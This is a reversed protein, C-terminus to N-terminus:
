QYEVTEDLIVIETSEGFTPILSTEFLFATTGEPIAYSCVGNQATVEVSQWQWLHSDKDTSTTYVFKVSTFVENEYTFSAVGDSIAVNSIMSLTDQRYLVHAFFAAVEGEKTWEAHNINTRQSYFVKGQVLNASAQRNYVSFFADDVGSVFLMPKTAYPLYSSADYLDIWEQKRAGGFIGDKQWTTDNYVFGCGNTSAFAAFRKDVGATVCTVFGGWSNGTMVIRNKDVDARARLINNCMIAGCVAHYIWADTPTDVSDLNSGGGTEKPGGEPNPVRQGDENLQNSFSDFAIAVYGESMWYEMWAKRVSGGGGHALVIAPYGDKPMKTTPVGIAAFVWTHTSNQYPVSKFKFARINEGLSIGVEKTEPVTAFLAQTDFISDPKVVDEIQYLPANRDTNGGNNDGASGCGVLGGFAGIGCIFALGLTAKEWFQKM